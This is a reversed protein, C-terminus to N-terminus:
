YPFTTPNCCFIFGDNPNDPLSLPCAVHQCTSLLPPRRSEFINNYSLFVYIGNGQTDRVVKYIWKPVPLKSDALCACRENGNEDQLRLIDIGGTRIRFPQQPTVQNRLWREIEHWNGDNISKFQPVVNIYRFTSVMQDAFLFDASAVLHGRNIVLDNSRPLYRQNKGFVAQFEDYIRHKMYAAAEAPEVIQDTNFHVLPRKAFYSKYYLDSQSYLVRGNPRDYCTRFLELQQGKMMYGVIYLTEPCDSGRKQMVRPQMPEDCSMPLPETFHGNDQCQTEVVDRETCVMYLTRGQPVRETRLLEVAGGANRYTFIRNTNEVMNQTIQCDAQIGMVHMLIILIGVLYIM